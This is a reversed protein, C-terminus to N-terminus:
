QSSEKHAAHNASSSASASSSNSSSESSKGAFNALLKNILNELVIASQTQMIQSGNKLYTESGGADIAIYQGGLLGQTDISAYSDDPIQNYQPDIRLTVLARYNQPDIRIGQVAGISVGALTVPAGGKLDGINDFEATVTYGAKAGSLKLGNSPLQATLFFLAAFGLLVFLGTWIELSRNTRM